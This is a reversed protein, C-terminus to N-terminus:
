FPLPEPASSGENGYVLAVLQENSPLTDAWHRLTKVATRARREHEIERVACSVAVSVATRALWARHEPTPDWVQPPAAPEPPADEFMVRRDVEDIYTKGTPSEWGVVGPSSRRVKWRFRDDVKPHKLPHHRTCFHALNNLHTEGGLAHDHNHDIECRQVPARCGPARCHQDRAQLTRRMTPTPSYSTTSVVEGRHDTFLKTWISTAAALERVIAPDLPGYNDHEAPRDDAGVLTKASITVNVNARIADLGTGLLTEARGGLLQDCFVDARLQDRTREDRAVEAQRERLLDVHLPNIFAAAKALQERYEAAHVEELGKAQQTLRDYIGRGLITPIYATIECMGDGDERFTVCRRERATKHREIVNNRDLLAVLQKARHRTRAATTTKAYAIIEAEYRAVAEPDHAITAAEDVIYRTHPLSIDGASFAVGTATFTDRVATGLSMLSGIAGDTMHADIAFMALLSNQASAQDALGTAGLAEAADALLAISRAQVRAADRQFASFEEVHGRLSSQEFFDGYEM